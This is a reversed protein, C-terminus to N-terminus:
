TWGMYASLLSLGVGLVFALAALRMLYAQQEPEM